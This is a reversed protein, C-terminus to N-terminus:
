IPSASAIDGRQFAMRAFRFAENSTHPTNIYVPTPTYTAQLRAELPPPGSLTAKLTPVRQTENIATPTFTFTPSPGATRTPLKAVVPKTGQGQYYLGLWILVLVAVATMTLVAFRMLPNNWLAQLAGVDKVELVEVQWRRRLPPKPKIESEPPLAGLLILGQRAAKNKPDIKLISQLCYIQEKPTEVVSSMWLWYQTNSGDTRLLRTLLDRARKRQGLRIAEVAEQFMIDEPM